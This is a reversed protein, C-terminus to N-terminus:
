SYTTKICVRLEKKEPFMSLYKVVPEKSAPLVTPPSSEGGVSERTHKIRKFDDIKKVIPLIYEALRVSDGEM